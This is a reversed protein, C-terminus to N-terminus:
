FKLNLDLQFIQYQDIPNIAIDTVGGTGLADDVRWAYGWTANVWVADSLM